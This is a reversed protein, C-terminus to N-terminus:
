QLVNKQQNLSLYIPKSLTYKTTVASMTPHNPQSAYQHLSSLPLSLALLGPFSPTLSRTPFQLGERWKTRQERQSSLPPENTASFPHFVRKM